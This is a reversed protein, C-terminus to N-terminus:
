AAARSALFDKISPTRDAASKTGLAILTRRLANEWCVAERANKESLGADSLTLRDLLHIRLSLVAARNVLMRQTVTPKGGIHATLDDRVERMLKAEARRGDLLALKKPRSYPGVQSM